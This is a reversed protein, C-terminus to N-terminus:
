TRPYYVVHYTRSRPLPIYHAQAPFRALIDGSVSVSVMPAVLGINRPNGRFEYGSDSQISSETKSRLLRSRSALSTYADLLVDLPRIVRRRNIDCTRLTTTADCDHNTTLMTPLDTVTPWTCAIIDDNCTSADSDAGREDGYDRFPERVHLRAIARVAPPQVFLEAAPLQFDVIVACAIGPMQPARHCYRSPEYVHKKRYAASGSEWRSTSM